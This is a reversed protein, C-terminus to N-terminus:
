ISVNKREKEWRDRHDADCWRRGATLPEGCLLCEGTEEAELPANKIAAMKLQHETDVWDNAIDVVDAM